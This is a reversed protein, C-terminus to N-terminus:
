VALLTYTIRDNFQSPYINLTCFINLHICMYLHYYRLKYFIWLEFFIESIYLTRPNCVHMMCHLPNHRWSHFSLYRANETSPFAFRLLRWGLNSMSVHQITFCGVPSPCRAIYKESNINTYVDRRRSKFGVYFDIATIKGGLSIALIGNCRRIVRFIWNRSDICISNGSTVIM